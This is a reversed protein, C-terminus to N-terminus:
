FRYGFRLGASEQGANHDCTNANSFHDAYLQGTFNRTFDYGVGIGLHFLVNCGLAKYDKPDDLNKATNISGGLSNSLYIRDTFYTEWNLGAYFFHIPHDAIGADFGIYPRPSGIAYLFDPSPFVLEGNITAGDTEHTSFFGTDYAAIGMRIEWFDANKGIEGFNGILHREQATATGALATTALALLLAARLTKFM